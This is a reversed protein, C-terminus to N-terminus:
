GPTVSSTATGIRSSTETRQFCPLVSDYRWGPNGLAEWEDYDERQGRNYVLGNILTSGGLAGKRCPYPAGM